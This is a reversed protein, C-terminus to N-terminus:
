KKLSVKEPIVLTSKMVKQRKEKVTWSSFGILINVRCCDKKVEWDSLKRINFEEM